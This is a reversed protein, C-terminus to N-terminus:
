SQGSATTEMEVKAKTQKMLNVETLFTTLAFFDGLEMQTLMSAIATHLESASLNELLEKSLEKMRNVERTVTVTQKQHWLGWLRRKTRTERETRVETINRAGLLLIAAIDGLIRCDKAIALSTSAVKETDFEFHPLHSVAESVLILTAISPPAAKYEKDGIKIKTAQQLITSAVKTELNEAM